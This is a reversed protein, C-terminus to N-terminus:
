IKAPFKPCLVSASPQDPASLVYFHMKGSLDCFWVEKAGAEFYLRKKEIMEERTNSPSLVEVCIEPATELLGDRLAKRKRASSIWIVDAAKVGESTSVPCETVAFGAPLHQRLMTGISCQYGGHEFTPPTSMVIAQGFRDTEVRFDHNRFVPDNCLEKWRRRNFERQDAITDMVPEKLM